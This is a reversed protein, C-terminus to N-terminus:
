LMERVGAILRNAEGALDCMCDENMVRDDAVVSLCFLYKEFVAM